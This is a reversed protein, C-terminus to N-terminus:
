NTKHVKAIKKKRLNYTSVTLLVVAIVEGIIWWNNEGTKPSIFNNNKSSTERTDNSAEAITAGSLIAYRGGTNVQFVIDEEYEDYEETDSEEDYEEIKADEDDDDEEYEEMEVDEDYTEEEENSYVRQYELLEVSADEKLKMVGGAQVKEYARNNVKIDVSQGEPIEYESGDNTNIFTIKYAALVTNGVYYHEYTDDNNEEQEDEEDFEEEDLYDEEESYDEEELEVEELDDEEDDMEEDSSDDWQKYYEDLAEQFSEVEEKEIVMQVYDPLNDSIVEFGEVDQKTENNTTIEESIDEKKTAIEEEKTTEKIDDPTTSTEIKSEEETVYEGITEKENNDTSNELEGKEQGASQQESKEEIIEQAMASNVFAINTVLLAIIMVVSLIRRNRKM